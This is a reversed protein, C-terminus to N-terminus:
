KLMKKNVMFSIKANTEGVGVGAYKSKGEPEM